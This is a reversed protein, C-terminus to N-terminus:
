WREVYKVCPRIMVSNGYGGYGLSTQSATTYVDKLVQKINLPPLLSPPPTTKRPSLQDLVMCSYLEAHQLTVLMPVRTLEIYFM